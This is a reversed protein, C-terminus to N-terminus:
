RKKTKFIRKKYKSYINGYEDILYIPKVDKYKLEKFM